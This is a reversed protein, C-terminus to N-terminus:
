AYPGGLICNIYFEVLLERLKGLKQKIPMKKINEIIKGEREKKISHMADKKSIFGLSRESLVLFIFQEIINEIIYGAAGYDKDAYNRLASKHRELLYEIKELPEKRCGKLLCAALSYGQVIIGKLLINRTFLDEKKSIEDKNFIHLNIRKGFLEEVSKKDEDLRKLNKAVILIDIDSDENATGAVYSGFVVMLSVNDKEKHMLLRISALVDKPLKQLRQSDFSFKLLLAAENSLNLSVLKTKGVRKCVVFNERILRSISDSAAGKGTKAEKVLSIEKFERSPDNFLVNLIKVATKSGLIGEM